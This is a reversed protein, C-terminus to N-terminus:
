GLATGALSAVKWAGGEREMSIAYVTGGVGRYLIFGRDSEFRLSGVNAKAAEALTSAPVSKSLEKLLRPCRASAFKGSSASLQQLSEILDSAMHACAAGWDGEARADLFGHLAAAAKRFEANSAEEGFEQVSNDGGRVLFQASGGGSDHHRSPAFTDAKTSTAGPHAASTATSDGGGGGCGALSAAAL